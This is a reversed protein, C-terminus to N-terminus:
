QKAHGRLDLEDALAGWWRACSRALVAVTATCHAPIASLVQEHVDRIECVGLWHLLARSTRSFQMSPDGRLTALLRAIARLSANPREGIASAARLRGEAGSTPRVRGDRGVRVNSQGSKGTTRKRVASVTSPSM